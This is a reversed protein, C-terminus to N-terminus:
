VQWPSKLVGDIMVKLTQLQNTDKVVVIEDQENLYMDPMNPRKYRFIRQGEYVYIGFLVNNSM